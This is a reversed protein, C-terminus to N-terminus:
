EITVVTGSYPYTGGPQLGAPDTVLNDPSQLTAQYTGSTDGVDVFLWVATSVGEPFNATVDEFRLEGSLNMDVKSSLENGNADFLQGARGDVMGSSYADQLFLMELAANTEATFELCLAPVETSGTPVTVAAEMDDCPATTLEVPPTGTDEAWSTDIAQTDKGGCAALVLPLAKFSDPVRM